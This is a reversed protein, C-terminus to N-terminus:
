EKWSGLPRKCDQCYARKLKGSVEFGHSGCAACTFATMTLAGASAAELGRGQPGIPSAEASSVLGSLRLRWPCGTSSRNLKSNTAQQTPQDRSARTMRM